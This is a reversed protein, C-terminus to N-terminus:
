RKAAIRTGRRLTKRAGARARREGPCARCRAGRRCCSLSPGTGRCNCDSDPARDGRVCAPPSPHAACQDLCRQLQPCRLQTLGLCPHARQEGLRPDRRRRTQEQIPQEPRLPALRAPHAGLCGSIGTGPPLLGDQPPPAPLGIAQAVDHAVVRQLRQSVSVGHQHDIFGPEQRLAFGRAAHSPLVRARGALDRVALDPHEQGVRCPWVKM